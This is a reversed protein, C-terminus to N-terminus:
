KPGMLYNLTEVTSESTNINYAFLGVGIATAISAYAIKKCSAPENKAPTFNAQKDLISLYRKVFSQIWPDLDSLEKDMNLEPQERLKIVRSIIKIRDRLSWDNSYYDYNIPFDLEEPMYTLCKNFDYRDFNFTLTPSEPNFYWKFAINKKFMLEILDEELDDETYESPLEMKFLGTNADFFHIETPSAVYLGVFHALPFGLLTERGDKFRLCYFSPYKFHCLKGFIQESIFGINCESEVSVCSSLHKEYPSKSLYAKEEDSIGNLVSLLASYDIQNAKPDNFKFASIYLHYFHTFSGCRGGVKANEWSLMQNFPIHAIIKGKM